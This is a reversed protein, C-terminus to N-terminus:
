DNENLFNIMEKFPLPCKNVEISYFYKINDEDLICTKKYFFEKLRKKDDFDHVKVCYDSGVVLVLRYNNKEM